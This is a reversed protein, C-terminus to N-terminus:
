WAAMVSLINQLPKLTGKLRNEFSSEYILHNENEVVSRVVVSIVRLNLHRQYCRWSAFCLVMTCTYVAIVTRCPTRSPLPPFITTSRLKSIGSIPDNRFEFELKQSPTPTASSTKAMRDNKWSFYGWLCKSFTSPKM